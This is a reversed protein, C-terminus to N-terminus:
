EGLLNDLYKKMNQGIIYTTKADVAQCYWCPCVNAPEQSLDVKDWDIDSM